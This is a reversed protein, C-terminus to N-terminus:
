FPIRPRGLFGDCEFHFPFFQLVQALTAGLLILTATLWRKKTVPNAAREIFRAGGFSVCSMALLIPLFRWSWWGYFVYNAVLLLANQWRWRGQCAWYLTATLLFFFAFQSSAFVMTLLDVKPNQRFPPLCM